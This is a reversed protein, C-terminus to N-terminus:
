NRRELFRRLAVRALLGAVVTVCRLNRFFTRPGGTVTRFLWEMGIRRMWAPAWLRRGSHFDFAAGVPLMVPVNFQAVHQAAWLEQKPSGLCVWMIHAGSSEILSKLEAEEQMTLERFPPSYTGAVHLSPFRRALRQALREAVGPAGGYFFHKWGRSLGYDCAALLFSPGPIREPLRHGQLRALMSLAVGDAFVAAAENMVRRVAPNQAVNSLLSAECFCAFRPQKRAIAQELWHLAGAMDAPTIQLLGLSVSQLDVPNHQGRGRTGTAMVPTAAADIAKEYVRMLRKYLTEAGCLGSAKERGAAALRAGLAGDSWLRSIKDALDAPNGPEYLLGTVGEEVIEPLGGIRTCVVPVGAAMAELLVAPFNEYCRTAFSLLRMGAFFGQLQPERLHGVFQVNAPAEGVLHPMRWYDGAIKFPIAPLRRAAALLTPVDKEPSVRGVYGVYTLSRRKRDLPWPDPALNPIVTMRDSPFGAGIHIDRQFRTLCIFQGVHRLVLGSRRAFATRLAYGLSKPLSRECNYRVCRWEHGGV